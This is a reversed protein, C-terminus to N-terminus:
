NCIRDLYNGQSLNCHTLNTLKLAIECLANSWFLELVRSGFAQISEESAGNENCIRLGFLVTSNKTFIRQNHAIYVVTSVLTLRHNYLFLQNTELPFWFGQDLHHM